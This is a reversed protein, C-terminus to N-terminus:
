WDAEVPTVCCCSSAAVGDAMCTLCRLAAMGRSHPPTAETKDPEKQPFSGLRRPRPKDADVKMVPKGQLSPHGNVACTPRDAYCDSFLGAISVPTM